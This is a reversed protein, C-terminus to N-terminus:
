PLRVGRALNFIKLGLRYVIPAHSGPSYQECRGKAVWAVAAVGPGRLEVADRAAEDKVLGIQSIMSLGKQDQLWGAVGLSGGLVLRANPMRRHVHNWAM